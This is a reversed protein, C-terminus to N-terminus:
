RNSQVEFENFYRVVWLIMTCFEVVMNLSFGTNGAGVSPGYVLYSALATAFTAGLLNIRVCIWRNLNYAIRGVRIYHNVRSLSENKFPVEAGYARISVPECYYYTLISNSVLLHVKGIGAIAASFHALLPSRANSFLKHSRYM